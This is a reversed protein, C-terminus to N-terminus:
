KGPASRSLRVENFQIAGADGPRANTLDIVFLLSTARHLDPRTAPGDVRRLDAVGVTAPTSAPSVFVSTGWRAEGDAAFRLQVSVRHPRSARATFSVADFSPADRPFDAALAVFQSVRGGPHLRYDLAVEGSRADVRLVGHSGKDKEIRWASSAIEFVVARSVPADAHVPVLRFIPNSVLWPVPPEGPAGRVQVEVRYAGLAGSQFDLAGGGARAIDEGNRFAIIAAGEPVAARATFSAIGGGHLVSGQRATHEATRGSFELTSGNAIADIATYFSGRRIARLLSQGDGGAEGTFPADLEVRTSFSRFSAEYSPVRIRRRSSPEEIRGGIGGHADHGGIALVRRSRSVSDWQVLTSAPRDLLSALAAAPRFPYAALSRALRWRSEDRWESDANLWEVGDIPLTWDAWALEARSSGPHAAVGLGGLRAVDEVVAASEGGLPYPSTAAGLAIYHGGNTSIEVADLCLVGDLYEPDDVPRTGDGHDTFVVFQLGAQRAAAAVARKDASGDSRTTHVHFAGRVTRSALPSDVATVARPSPPLSAIVLAVVAALAAMTVLAVLRFTSRQVAALRGPEAAGRINGSAFANARSPM